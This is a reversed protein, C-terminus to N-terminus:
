EQVLQTILKFEEKGKDTLYPYFFTMLLFSYKKIIGERGLDFDYISSSEIWHDSYIKILDILRKYEGINEEGRILECSILRNILTSYMELRIQEVSYIIQKIRPYAKCISHLELFLFRFDYVVSFGVETTKFLKVLLSKDHYLAKNLQIAKNLLLNHLGEIIDEQTPFHYILNSHSINAEKALQRISTNAVGNQNYLKLAADLIVKKTKIM